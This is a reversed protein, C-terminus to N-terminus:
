SYKVYAEGYSKPSRYYQDVKQGLPMVKKGDKEGDDLDLADKALRARQLTM